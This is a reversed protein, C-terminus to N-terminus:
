KPSQWEHQRAASEGAKDLPEGQIQDEIMKAIMPPLAAAATRYTGGQAAGGQTLAQIQWQAAHRCAIGSAREAGALTFTRCYEGSKALYSVGIHVAGAGAQEAALQRSLAGALSGNAVLTGATGRGIPLSGQSWMGYGIALGLLV